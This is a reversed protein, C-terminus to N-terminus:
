GVGIKFGMGFDFLFTGLLWFWLGGRLRFFVWGSASLSAWVFIYEGINKKEIQRLIQESRSPGQYQCLFAACVYVHFDEFGGDGESLYTDWLRIVCGLSFERLLLCNMWKFAFQMFKIGMNKLYNWLSADMRRVLKELRAVM